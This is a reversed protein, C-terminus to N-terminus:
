KRKKFKMKLVGNLMKEIENNLYIEQQKTFAAERPLKVHLDFQYDFDRVITLVKFKFTPTFLYFWLDHIFFIFDKM